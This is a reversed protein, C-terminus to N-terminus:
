TYLNIILLKIYQWLLREKLHSSSDFLRYEHKFRLLLKRIMPHDILMLYYSNMRKGKRLDRKSHVLGEWYLWRYWFYSNWMFKIKNRVISASFTEWMTSGAEKVGRAKEQLFIENENAAMVFLLLFFIFGLSLCITCYIECCSGLGSRAM